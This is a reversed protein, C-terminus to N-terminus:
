NAPSRAPVESSARLWRCVETPELHDARMVLHVIPDDLLEDLSPEVGAHAYPSEWSEAASRSSESRRAAKTVGGPGITWLWGRALVGANAVGNLTSLLARVAAM